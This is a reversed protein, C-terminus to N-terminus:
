GFDAEGADAWGSSGTDSSGSSGSGPQPRPQQAHLLSPGLLIGAGLAGALGGALLGVPLSDVPVGNQKTEPLLKQLVGIGAVDSPFIGADNVRRGHLPFRPSQALRRAMDVGEATSDHLLVVPLDPREALLRQAQHLLYPPYGHESIVLARQEAHVNNKVFLDVLLDHQVILLREVGYDHVDPERYGGPPQHLSPRELLKPIPGKKEVWAGLWRDLPARNPPEPPRRGTLLIVLAGVGPAVSVAGALAAALLEDDAALVVAGVFAAAALGGLALMGALAGCGYGGAFGSRDQCYLTYLQNKTFYYTGNASARALLQRFKGDTIGDTRPQFVYEYGCKACKMGEKAKQTTSCSPCKM